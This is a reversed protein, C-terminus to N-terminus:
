SLKAVEKKSDTLHDSPPHEFINLVRGKSEDQIVRELPRILHNRFLDMNRDLAEVEGLSASALRPIYHRATVSKPAHGLYQEWVDNLLGQIAGFTPLCNRLDKPKWDVNPNWERIAATIRKSYNQWWVGFPRGAPSLVVTEDLRVVGLAQTKRRKEARRLTELVRDCVPIVRQRYANKVEGSIEILGRDLDVRDWTLRTAEQLQLGALGQLAAGAELGPRAKKLFDLFAVVDILYVEAPPNKLRSGLGLRTAVDRYGYERSMFGSTQCIPQLGLRKTTDSKGAYSGLYERVMSRTLLHWHTCHSHNEVLWRMFQAVSYLWDKRSKAGRSTNELALGFAEALTFVADSDTKCGFGAIDPATRFAAEIGEARFRRRGNGKLKRWSVEFIRDDETSQFLSFRDTSRVKLWKKKRTGKMRMRREARSVSALAIRGRGISHRLFRGGAIGAAWRGSGPRGFRRSAVVASCM